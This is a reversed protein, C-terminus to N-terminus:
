QLKYGLLERSRVSEQETEPKLNELEPEPEPKKEAFGGFLVWGFCLILSFGYIVKSSSSNFGELSCTYVWPVLAASWLM